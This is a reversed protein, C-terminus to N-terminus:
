QAGNRVIQEAYYNVIHAQDQLTEIYANQLLQSRADRLQKRISQQVRPDDLQRQGAADKDLLKYIAYGVQKKQGTQTNVYLPLVDTVQGPNLKTIAAYAGPDGKLQSETIMGMDGGSQANDPRESFRAALMGFDEGSAIQTRLMQIKRRAEADNTAKSNQLNGAQQAPTPISTVVIQAMHYQPEPVDFEVKHANYYNSIDSDTINIKSNIEKNFLKEETKDRRIDEKLKDLTMHQDALKKNFEEQTYPAKIENLKSQVEEDNATLNLKAARQVLIENLILQHVISLRVNDAQDQSPQQHSDGLNQQYLLDVDPRLIPKGNVTAVVDPNHASRQCGTFSVCLAAALLSASFCSLLGSKRLFNQPFANRAAYLIHQM